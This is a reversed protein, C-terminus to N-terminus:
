SKSGFELLMNSIKNISVDSSDQSEQNYQARENNYKDISHQSNESSSVYLNM